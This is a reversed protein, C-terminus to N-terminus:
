KILLTKDFFKFGWSSILEDDKTGMAEYASKVSHFYFKEGSITDRIITFKGKKYKCCKGWYTSKDINGIIRLVQSDPREKGMYNPNFILPINLLDSLEKKKKCADKKSLGRHLAAKKLNVATPLSRAGNFINDRTHVCKKSNESIKMKSFKQILDNTVNM